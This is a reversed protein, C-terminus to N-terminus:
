KEVELVLCKYREQKYGDCYKWKELETTGREKVLEQQIRFNTRQLAM